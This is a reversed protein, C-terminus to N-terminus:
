NGRVTVDFSQRHLCFRSDSGGASIEKGQESPVLFLSESKETLNSKRPVLCRKGIWEEAVQLWDADKCIPKMLWLSMWGDLLRDESRWYLTVLDDYVM